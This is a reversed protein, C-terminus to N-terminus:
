SYKLTLGSACRASRVVCINRIGTASLTRKVRPRGCLTCSESCFFQKRPAWVCKIHARECLTGSASMIGTVGSTCKLRPRECLTCSERSVVKYTWHWRIPTRRQLELAVRPANQTLGSACRVVNVVLMNTIGAVVSTCKVHARERLTCSKHYLHTHLQLQM